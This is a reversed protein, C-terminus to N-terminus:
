YTLPEQKAEMHYGTANRRRTRPRPLLPKNTDDECFVDDVSHSGFHVYYITSLNQIM